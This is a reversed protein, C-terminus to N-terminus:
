KGPHATDLCVQPASLHGQGGHRAPSAKTVWCDQLHGPTPTPSGIPFAGQFANAWGRGGVERGRGAWYPLPSPGLSPPGHGLPEGQCFIKKLVSSFFFCVCCLNNSIFSPVVRGSWDAHGGGCPDLKLMPLSPRGQFHGGEIGILASTPADGAFDGGGWSGGWWGGCGPWEAGLKEGEEPLPAWSGGSGAPCHPGTSPRLEGPPHGGASSGRGWTGQLPPM